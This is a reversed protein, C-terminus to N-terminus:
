FMKQDTLRRVKENCRLYRAFVHNWDKGKTGQRKDQDKMMEDLNRMTYTM